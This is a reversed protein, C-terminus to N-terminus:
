HIILQSDPIVFNFTNYIVIKVKGAKALKYILSTGCGITGDEKVYQKAFESVSMAGKPLKTVIERNLESKRKSM